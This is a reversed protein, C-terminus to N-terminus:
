VNLDNAAPGANWADMRKQLNKASIPLLLPFPLLCLSFFLYNRLIAKFLERGLYCNTDVWDENHNIFFYKIIALLIKCSLFLSQQRKLAAHSHTRSNHAAYYKLWIITQKTTHVVSTTCVIHLFIRSLIICSQLYHYASVTSFIYVYYKSLVNRSGGKTNNTQWSFRCVCM